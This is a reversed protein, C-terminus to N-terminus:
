QQGSSAKAKKGSLNEYRQLEFIVAWNVVRAAGIQYFCNLLRAPSGIMSTSLALAMRPAKPLNMANFDSLM